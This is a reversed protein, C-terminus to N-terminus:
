RSETPIEAPQPPIPNIRFSQIAHPDKVLGNSSEKLLRNREREDRLLKRLQRTTTKCFPYAAM